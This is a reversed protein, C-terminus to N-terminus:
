ILFNLFLFKNSTTQNIRKEFSKSSSSFFLLDINGNNKQLRRKSKRLNEIIVTFYILFYMM